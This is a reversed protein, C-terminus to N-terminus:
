RRKTDLPRGGVGQQGPLIPGVLAQRVHHVLQRGISPSSGQCYEGAATGTAYSLLDLLSGRVPPLAISLANFGHTASAMPVKASHKMPAPDMQILAPKTPIASACPQTSATIIEAMPWIEPPCKLGATVSPASTPFLILSGM